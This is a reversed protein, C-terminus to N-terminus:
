RFSIISGHGSVYDVRFVRQALFSTRRHQATCLDHPRVAKEQHEATAHLVAFCRSEGESLEVGAEHIGMWLQVVAVAVNIGIVVTADGLFM